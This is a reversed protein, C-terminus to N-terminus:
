KEADDDDVVPRKRPRGRPRLSAEVGLRVAIATQWDPHGYPRGRATSVRIAALEMENAPANVWDLWHAPRAVPGEHWYAPRPEGDAPLSSWPWDEARQVLGALLANREVYRLVRLLHEDHEIAFAKFRGQWLHGSSHYHRHYRRVHTNLLWHMFRSLDGDEYPWLVLHFHNPLLCWGLVRMTVEVHAHALAKLLALYDGDKFFVRQRANGRNLVHYCQNGVSARAGRPMGPDYELLRAALL